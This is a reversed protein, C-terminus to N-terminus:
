KKSVIEQTMEVLTNQIRGATDSADLGHIVDNTVMFTKAKFYIDDVDVLLEKMKRRFVELEHAEASCINILQETTLSLSLDKSSEPINAVALLQDKTFKFKTLLEESRINSNRLVTLKDDTTKENKYEKWLELQGQPAGISINPNHNSPLQLFEKLSIFCIKFDLQTESTKNVRLWWLTDSKGDQARSTVGQYDFFALMNELSGGVETNPASLKLSWYQDQSDVLDYISYQFKSIQTQKGGLFEVFAEFFTGSTQASYNKIMSFISSAFMIHALSDGFSASEGSKISNIKNIFTHLNLLLNNKTSITKQLTSYFVQQAEPTDLQQPAQRVLKKVFYEIPLDTAHAVESRSIPMPRTENDDQEKFLEKAKEMSEFLAFLEKLDMANSQQKPSLFSEALNDLENNNM